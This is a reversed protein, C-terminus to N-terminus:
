IDLTLTSVSDKFGHKKYLKIAKKNKAFAHLKIRKAGNEKAWSTFTEMLDAGIGASRFDEHVYINALLFQKVPKWARSTSVKGGFVHGVIKKDKVAVFVINHPEYFHKKIFNQGAVSNPWALNLVQGFEKHEYQHLAIFFENVAKFDKKSAKRIHYDM